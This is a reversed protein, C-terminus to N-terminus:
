QNQQERRHNRILPRGRIEKEGKEGQRLNMKLEEPSNRSKNTRQTVDEIQPPHPNEGPNELRLATPNAAM